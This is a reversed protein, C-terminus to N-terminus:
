KVFTQADRNNDNILSITYVGKAVAAPIQLTNKGMPTTGLNKVYVVRGYMDVVTITLPM